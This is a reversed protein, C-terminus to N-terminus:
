PSVKHWPAAGTFPDNRVTCRMATIQWSFFPQYFWIINSDDVLEQHDRLFCYCQADAV